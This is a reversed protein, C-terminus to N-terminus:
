RAGDTAAGAAAIEQDAAGVAGVARGVGAYAAVFRLAAAIQQPSCGNRLAGRTHLRVEDLQGLVAVIAITLLSRVQPELADDLWAGGWACRTVFQQFPATFSSADAMVADVYEDGLVARRVALAREFSDDM